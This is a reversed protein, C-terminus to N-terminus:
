CEALGEQGLENGRCRADLDVRGESMRHFFQSGTCAQRDDSVVEGLLPGLSAEVEIRV